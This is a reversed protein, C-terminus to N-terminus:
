FDLIKLPNRRKKGSLGHKAWGSSLAGEAARNEAGGYAMPVATIDFEASREREKAM